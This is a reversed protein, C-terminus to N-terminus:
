LMNTLLQGRTIMLRSKEFLTQFPGSLLQVALGICDRILENFSLSFRLM